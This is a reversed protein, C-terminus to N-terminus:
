KGVLELVGDRVKYWHDGVAEEDGIDGIVQTWINALDDDSVGDKRHKACAEWAEEQTCAAPLGYKEQVSVDEVTTVPIPPAAPKDHETKAVVKDVAEAMKTTATPELVPPKPASPKPAVPPASKPKPGGGLERLGSAFKANLKKLEDADLRRLQQGPEADVHDIWEVRLSIKNNYDNEGVRGQIQTKSLDMQDLLMFDRGDWGIAKVLQRANLLPQKEHGFLVLFAKIENDEYGSYDVWEGSEEDYA